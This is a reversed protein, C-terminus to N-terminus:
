LLARAVQLADRVGASPLYARALAAGAAPLVLADRYALHLPAYSPSFKRKFAFLSRFGYAPELARALLALVRQPAPAGDARDLADEGEPAVLPAASLSLEEIGDDRMQLASSAILFEMVGNISDPRRRMFDLTWGVVRGDRYRPMWSTVAEVQGGADIALGLAVEPDRLEDTGGLTFGLEPLDKEAVWSESIEDIQLALAPPLEAHRTWLFRIGAREARNISSRVDQWSRGQLTLSAPRVITETGVRTTAWGMAHAIPVFDDHVSYFLADWGRDDCFDVFARAAAEWQEAPGIPDSVSVACGSHVRYAIAVAGDASFWYRNGRWTALHGLSGSGHRLLARVRELEASAVADPTAVILWATAAVVILWFLPGVADYVALALPGSPLLDIAELRLFGVPVFRDPLELLLSAPTAVPAFQARALM